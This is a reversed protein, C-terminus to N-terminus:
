ENCTDASRPMQFHFSITDTYSELTFIPVFQRTLMQFKLSSGMFWAEHCVGILQAFIGGKGM